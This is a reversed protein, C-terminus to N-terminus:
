VNKQVRFTPTTHETSLTPVVVVRDGLQDGDELLFRGTIRFGNNLDVVGVHYPGEAKFQLPPKRITTWSALTGVGPVQITDMGTHLCKACTEICEAELTGCQMCQHFSIMEPTFM